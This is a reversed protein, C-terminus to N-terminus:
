WDVLLNADGLLLELDGSVVLVSRRRSPHCLLHFLLFVPVRIGKELVSMLDGSRSLSWSELLRLFGRVRLYESVVQRRQTDSRGRIPYRSVLAAGVPDRDVLERVARGDVWDRWYTRRGYREPEAIELSRILAAWCKASSSKRISEVGAAKLETLWLLELRLPFKTDGPISYQSMVGTKLALGLWQTLDKKSWEGERGISWRLDETDDDRYHALLRFFQIEDWRYRTEKLARGREVLLQGTPDVTVTTRTSKERSRGLKIWDFLNVIFSTRHSRLHELVTTIRCTPTSLPVSGALLQPYIAHFSALGNARWEAKLLHKKQKWHSWEAALTLSLRRNISGLFQEEAAKALPKILEHSSKIRVRSRLTSTVSFGTEVKRSRERRVSAKLVGRRRYIRLSFSGSRTITLDASIRGLSSLAGSLEVLDAGAGVAWGRTAEWDLDLAWRIRGGWSFDTVQKESVSWARKPDLPDRFDSWTRLLAARVPEEGPVVHVWTYTVRSGATAEALAFSKHAGLDTELRTVVTWQVGYHKLPVRFNGLYAGRARLLRARIRTEPRIHWRSGGPGKGRVTERIAFVLELDKKKNFLRSPHTDLDLRAPGKELFLHVAAGDVLDSFGNELSWSAGLATM